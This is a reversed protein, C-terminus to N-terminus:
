ALLPDLRENILMNTLEILPLGILTNPDKGKMWEFLSVGLAESKFSGACDYPRERRLYNEIQEDTLRRFKVSYTDITLQIHSTASNLLCLGTVFKVEKGSCARLQLVAANHTMPKGLIKGSLHAVQDSGIILHNRFTGSLAEAKQQSLRLALQEPPEGKVPTENIAPAAWAFEIGLKELLERRYPSSSALVLRSSKMNPRYSYIKRNPIIDATM